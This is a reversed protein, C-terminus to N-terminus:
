SLLTRRAKVVWGGSPTTSENIITWRSTKGCVPNTWANLICSRLNVATTSTQEILLIDADGMDLGLGVCGYGPSSKLIAVTIDAGSIEWQFELQKDLTARNTLPSITQCNNNSPLCTILLVTLITEVFFFHKKTPQPQQM